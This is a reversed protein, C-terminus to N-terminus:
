QSRTLALVCCKLYSVLIKIVSKKNLKLKRNSALCVLDVMESIVGAELSSLLIIKYDNNDINEIYEKIIKMAYEKKDQGTIDLKDVSEVSYKIIEKISNNHTLSKDAM